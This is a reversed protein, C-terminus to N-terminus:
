HKGDAIRTRMRSSAGYTSLWVLAETAAAVIADLMRLFIGSAARRATVAGDLHAIEEDRIAAITQSLAPDRGALWAVQEDMHQHVTREVAETCVLIADHGFLSTIAGLLAGGIGWLPLMDCPRVNRAALNAAFTACHRREDGLAHELLPVLDPAIRRAIAIQAGYIRIAGYEGAHDVRLIDILTRDPAERM